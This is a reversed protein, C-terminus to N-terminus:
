QEKAKSERGKTWSLVIGLIIALRFSTEWDVTSAGHIIFSYLFTVIATVVLTVIFTTVFDILLEKMNM